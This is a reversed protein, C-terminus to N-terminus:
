QGVPRNILVEGHGGLDLPIIQIMILDHFLCIVLVKQGYKSWDCFVVFKFTHFRVDLSIVILM